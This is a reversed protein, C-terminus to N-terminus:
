TLLVATSRCTLNGLRSGLDEANKSFTKGLFKSHRSYALMKMEQHVPIGDEFIAKRKHAEVICTKLTVRQYQCGYTMM